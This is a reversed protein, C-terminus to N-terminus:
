QTSWTQSHFCVIPHRLSEMMATVMTNGALSSPLMHFRADLVRAERDLAPEDTADLPEHLQAAAVPFQSTAQYLRRASGLGASPNEIAVAGTSRGSGVATRVVGLVDLIRIAERVSARSVGHELALAREGPLQDGATIRGDRLDTEIRHLVTEYSRAVSGSAAKTTPVADM